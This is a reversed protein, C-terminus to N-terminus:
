ENVLSCCHYKVALEAHLREELEKDKERQLRRQKTKTIEDKLIQQKDKM